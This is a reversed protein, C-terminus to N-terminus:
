DNWKNLATVYFGGFIVTFNTATIHCHTFSFNQCLLAPVWEASHTHILRCKCCAVAGGRFMKLLMIILNVANCIDIGWPHKKLGGLRFWYSMPGPKIIIETHFLDQYPLQPRSSTYCVGMKRTVLSFTKRLKKGRRMQTLIFPVNGVKSPM